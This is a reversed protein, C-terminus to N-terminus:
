LRVSKGKVVESFKFAISQSEMNWCVVPGNGECSVVLPKSTLDRAFVLLHSVPSKHVDRLVAMWTGNMYNFLKLTGDEFGLVLLNEDYLQAKTGGIRGEILIDTLGWKETIYDWRILCTRDLLILTQIDAHTKFKVALGTAVDSSGSNWVLSYKDIFVVDICFFPRNVRPDTKAQSGSFVDFFALCKGSEFNTIKVQNRESVTCVLPSVPHYWVTSREPVIEEYYVKLAHGPKKDM